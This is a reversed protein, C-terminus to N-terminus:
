KKELVEIIEGEVYPVFTYGKSRVFDIISPLADATIDKEHFLMVIQDPYKENALESLVRSYIAGTSSQAWDMSDINWDICYFDSRAMTNYHGTKFHTRKGYPARCLTSWYGDTLAAVKERVAIMERLFFEPSDGMFYLKDRNHTMTHYGIHHGDELMKNLLMEGRGHNMIDISDGMVFFIAPVEKEKLVKLLKETYISPGDDFTLYAIKTPRQDYKIFEEVQKDVQQASVIMGTFFFALIGGVIKSIKGM